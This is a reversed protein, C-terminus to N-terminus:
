TALKSILEAQLSFILDESVQGVISPDLNIILSFAEVLEVILLVLLFHCRDAQLTEVEEIDPLNNGAGVEAHIAVVLHGVHIVLAGDLKHLDFADDAFEIFTEGQTRM